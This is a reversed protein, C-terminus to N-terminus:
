LKNREKKHVRVVKAKKWESLFKGPELCTKYIIDLSKCASEGRLKVRCISENVSLIDGHCTM